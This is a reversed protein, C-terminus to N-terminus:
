LEDEIDENKSSSVKINSINDVIQQDDKIIENSNLIKTLSEIDFIWEIDILKLEDIHKKIDNIDKTSLLYWNPSPTTRHWRFDVVNSWCTANILSSTKFDDDIKNYKAFYPAFGMSNCDEIIPHGNCKVFLKCNSSKHIRLQHCAIHIINSHCDELYVSTCCPGLVIKCDNVNELRVSGLLSRASIICNTCNKIFM